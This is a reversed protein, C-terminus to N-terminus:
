LVLWLLAGILCGGVIGMDAAGAFSLLGDRWPERPRRGEAGRRVAGAAKAWALGALGAGMIAVGALGSSLAMTALGAVPFAAGYALGAATSESERAMRAALNEMRGM